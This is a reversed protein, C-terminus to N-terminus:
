KARTGVVAIWDGQPDVAIRSIERVDDEQLNAIEEWSPDTKPDWRFLRSGSGMIATGDSMWAHFENGDLLRILPRVSRTEPDLKKIWYDPVRHTFSIGNLGPVKHLSRGINYAVIQAQGSRADAVQLTAPDGLVFLALLHDDIWAHYGVPKIDEFVLEPDRGEMNFQWLRQTSDAEVRIVSFADGGPVITPSYESENPTDTVQQTSRDRISYRYIDSQGGRMSTYLLSWGDSLFSPQNDYGKRDTINVAHGVKLQGESMRVSVLFIDTGPAEQAALPAGWLVLGVLSCFLKVKM